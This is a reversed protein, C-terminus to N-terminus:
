EPGCRWAASRRQHRAAGSRPVGASRRRRVDGGGGALVMPDRPPTDFLYASLATSFASPAAGSRAGARAGGASLGQKLVMTLVWTRTAGLAMRVGFERTRQSVNAAIVGTVGALTVVMALGAFISLLLATLRPTALSERRAEELTQVDEVPM